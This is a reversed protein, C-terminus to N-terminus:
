KNATANCDVWGVINNYFIDDISFSFPLQNNALTGSGSSLDWYDGFKDKLGNQEKLSMSNNIITARVGNFLNAFNNIVIEDDPIGASVTMNYNDIAGNCNENVSYTGVFKKNTKNVQINKSTNGSLKKNKSFVSLTVTYTGSSSYTHSPSINVTSQVGDGFDWLYTEWDLSCNTFDISEGVEIETTTTTFCPLPEKKCSQIFVFLILMIILNRIQTSM